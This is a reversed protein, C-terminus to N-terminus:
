ASCAQGYYSILAILAHQTLDNRMLTCQPTDCFGGILDRAPRPLQELLPTDSKTVQLSAIQHLAHAAYDEAQDMLAQDNEHLRMIPLAAMIGELYTAESLGPGIICGADACGPNNARYAMAKSVMQRIRGDYAAEIDDHLLLQAHLAWSFYGRMDTNDFDAADALFSAYYREFSDLAFARTDADGSSVGYAALALVAEASGYITIRNEQRPMFYLYRFGGSEERM